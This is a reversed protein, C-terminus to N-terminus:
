GQIYYQISTNINEMNEMRTWQMEGLVLLDEMRTKHVEMRTWKM